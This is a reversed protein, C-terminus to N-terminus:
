KVAKKAEKYIENLEKAQYNDWRAGLHIYGGEQIAAYDIEMDDQAVIWACVREVREWDGAKNQNARIILENNTVTALKMKM